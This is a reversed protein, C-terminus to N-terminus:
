QHSAAAMNSLAPWSSPCCGPWPHPHQALSRFEVELKVSADFVRLPSIFTWPHPAQVLRCPCSTHRHPLFCSPPHLLLIRGPLSSQTRPPVCLPPLWPKTFEQHPLPLSAGRNPAESVHSVSAAIVPEVGLRISNELPKGPPMLPLSGEQWHLFHLLRPNSGQTLSIGQLLAHCSM